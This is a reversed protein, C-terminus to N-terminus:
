WQSIMLVVKKKKNKELFTKLDLLVALADSFWGNYDTFCSDERFYKDFVPKKDKITKQELVENINDLLLNEEDENLSVYSTYPDTDSSTNDELWNSLISTKGLCVDDVEKYATVYTRIGM